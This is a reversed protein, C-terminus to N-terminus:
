RLGAPLEEDHLVFLRQTARTLSVYLAALGSEELIAKPEIVIVNDFELGKAQQADLVVIDPRLGTADTKMGSPVIVATLGTIGTAYNAIDDTLDTIKAVVPDHDGERVATAAVSVGNAELLAAAISMIKGPTRYNVTLTHSIWRGPAIPDLARTWQAAAGPTSAQLPDGVVTMSKSPVRRAIMRWAMPSLEQAEDVIAHGYTWTRDALAREALTGYDRDGEFREIIERGGSFGGAGANRAAVEAYEIEQKSIRITPEIDLPGLLEAAEDLLAVDQASWGTADSARLLLTQEDRSLVGAAAAALRAKDTFLKTLLQDASTPMWLLNLTRRSDVSERIEQTLEKREYSDTADLGRLEALQSTAKSMLSKLFRERGENHTDFENFARRTAQDIQKATLKVTQQGLTLSIGEAPRRRVQDVANKIVVAMRADGKLAAVADADSRSVDIGPYLEEITALVVGTEGLAPLVNDIYTLFRDSPGVILVGTRELKARDRYLLYAARHLAVVTKGTGPGGEVVMIGPHTSRVIVDQEAQITEVIEHMKGTRERNLAAFLVSDGELSADEVAEYDFVDDTLGTVARNETSIHRRRVVGLPNRANAQYYPAAAAARWDIQIIQQDEDALGTRGIYLQDGGELDLRGFCLRREAASLTAVRASYLDILAENELRSQAHNTRRKAAETMRERATRIREDLAAYAVDLQEQEPGNANMM